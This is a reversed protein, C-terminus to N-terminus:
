EPVPLESILDHATEIVAERQRESFASFDFGALLVIGHQSNEAASIEQLLRSIDPCDPMGPPPMRMRPPARRRKSTDGASPREVEGLEDDGGARERAFTHAVLDRSFENATGVVFTVLDEILRPKDTVGHAALLDGIFSKVYQHRTM